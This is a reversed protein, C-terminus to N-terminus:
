HRQPCSRAPQGSNHRAYLRTPPIRPHPAVFLTRTSSTTYQPRQIGVPRRLSRASPRYYSIHYASSSTLLGIGCREHSFELLLHLPVCTSFPTMEIISAHTPFTRQVTEINLLAPITNHLGLLCALYLLTLTTRSSLDRQRHVAKLAALLGLWSATRDHLSTLTQSQHVDRQLAIRQTYALPVATYLQSRRCDSLFCTSFARLGVTGFASAGITLGTQLRSSFKGVPFLTKQEWKALAVVLLLIHIVILGCHMLLCLTTENAQWSSRRASTKHENELVPVSSEPNDRAMGLLENHSDDDKTM